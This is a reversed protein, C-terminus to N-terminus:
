AKGLEEWERHAEVGCNDGGLAEWENHAEVSTSDCVDKLQMHIDKSKM